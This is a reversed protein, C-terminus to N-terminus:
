QVSKISSLKLVPTLGISNRLISPHENSERIPIYTYNLDRISLDIAEVKYKDIMSSFYIIGLFLYLIFYKM